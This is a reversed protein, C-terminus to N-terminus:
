LGNVGGRENDVEVEERCGVLDDNDSGEREGSELRVMGETVDVSSEDTSSDVLRTMGETVDVSSQDEEGDDVLQTMCDVEMEEEQQLREREERQEQQLREEEEREEQQLREREEREEQEKTKVLENSWIPMIGYHGVDPGGGNLDIEIAQKLALEFV